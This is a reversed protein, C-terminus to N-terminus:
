PLRDHETTDRRCAHPRCVKSRGWFRLGDNTRDLERVWYPLIRTTFTAPGIRTLASRWCCLGSGFDGHILKLTGPRRLVQATASGTFGDPRLNVWAANDRFPQTPLANRAFGPWFGITVKLRGHHLGRVNVWRIDLPGRVDHPDWIAVAPAPAVWGLALPLVLAIAFRRMLM